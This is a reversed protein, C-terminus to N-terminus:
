LRKAKKLYARLDGYTGDDDGFLVLNRASDLWAGISPRAHPLARLLDPTRIPQPDGTRVSQLLAQESALECVYAIDAGSLGESDKALRRADISDVPRHQLHFRFIAERAPADPPLVLVTRDLRGPRRLAPDIDWPQNTAGLVFVGENAGDVGDLETLLQNVAGRMMGVQQRSRRAGLADLEDFFLVCPAERRALAFADRLNRESQGFLPDLVDAIGVSLFAAGLEGALAKAIFTKGCGPPGYLLLGGRLSKGYLQRLRPNSLPALFSATLRDKVSDMGGVDALTIRSPEVTFRGRNVATSSRAFGDSSSGSPGDTESDEPGRDLFMSGAIDSVQREAQSWDFSSSSKAPRPYDVTPRDPLLARDMARRAGEHSPDIQLAAAIETIAGTRDDAALLQDALHLRLVVDNPAAASARRLASVLESDM